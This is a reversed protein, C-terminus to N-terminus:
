LAADFMKKSSLSAEDLASVDSAVVGMNSVGLVDATRNFLAPGLLM